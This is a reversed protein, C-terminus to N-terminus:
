KDIISITIITIIIQQRVHCRALGDNTKLKLKYGAFNKSGLANFLLLLLLLLLLLVYLSIAQGEYLQGPM